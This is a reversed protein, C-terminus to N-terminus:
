KPKTVNQEEDHALAPIKEDGLTQEAGYALAPIKEDGFPKSAANCAAASSELWKKTKSLFHRFVRQPQV